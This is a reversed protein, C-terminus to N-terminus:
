GAPVVVPGERRYAGSQFDPDREAVQCIDEFDKPKMSRGFRVLCEGRALADILGVFDGGFWRGESFWYFDFGSLLHKGERPCDQVLVQVGWAPADGPQGQNSDFSNHEYYIRWTPKM